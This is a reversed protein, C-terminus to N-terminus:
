DLNYYNSRIKTIGLEAIGTGDPFPIFFLGRSSGTIIENPLLLGSVKKSTEDEISKFILKFSFQIKQSTKNEIKIVVGNNYNDAKSYFLFKIDLIDDAYLKQWPYDPNGDQTFTLFSIVFLFVLLIRM